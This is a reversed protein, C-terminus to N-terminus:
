PSGLGHGCAGYRDDVFCAGRKDKSLVLVGSGFHDAARRLAAEHAEAGNASTVADAVIRVDFGQYFADLATAFVCFDTNIGCLFVEQVGRTRLVSALASSTFCSYNFKPQFVRLKPEVKEWAEVLKPDLAAGPTHARGVGPHVRWLTTESADSIWLRSDVVVEFAPTGATFLCMLAAINNTTEMKRYHVTALQEVAMDIVVLARAPRGRVGAPMSTGSQIASPRRAGIFRKKQGLGVPAPVGCRARRFVRRQPEAMRYSETAATHPTPTPTAAPLGARGLAKGAATGLRLIAWGAIAHNSNRRSVGCAEDSSLILHRALVSAGVQLVAAICGM